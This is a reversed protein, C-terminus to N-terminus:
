DEAMNNQRDVSAQRRAHWFVFLLLVLPVIAAALLYDSPLAFLTQRGSARLLVFLLFGVLLAGGLAAVALARTTRWWREQDPDSM